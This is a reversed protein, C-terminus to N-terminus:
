LVRHDEEAEVSVGISHLRFDAMAQAASIKFGLGEYRRFINVKRRKSITTQRLGDLAEYVTDEPESIIGVNILNTGPDALRYGLYSIFADLFHRIGIRRGIRIWATEVEPLVAAANADTQNATVKPAFCYQLNTVRFSAAQTAYLRTGSGGSTAYANADINTFTFWRRTPLHCIWTNKFGEAVGRMTCVYYNGYVAGAVSDDTHFFWGDFQRRWKTAMGGEEIINRVQGGDTIHVGREDAFIINERWYSISRADICGAQHWLPLLEMDGTPDSLSSDPPTTGRVQEVWDSHFVVVQNRLAALGTIQANTDIFSLSNWASMADFPHSFGLREKNTGTAGLVLRDRFVTGYEGQVHSATITDAGWVGAIYTVRGCNVGAAPFFVDRNYFIPNQRNMTPVTGILTAVAGGPDMRFAQTPTNVLLHPDNPTPFWVLGRPQTPLAGSMYEFAGRGRLEAGAIAPLFDKMEWVYGPPVNDRGDDQYMGVADKLFPEVQM